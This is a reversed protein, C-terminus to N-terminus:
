SYFQISIDFLINILGLESITEVLGTGANDYYYGRQEVQINILIRGSIRVRYGYPRNVRAIKTAIKRM